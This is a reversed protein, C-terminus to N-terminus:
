STAVVPGPPADLYEDGISTRIGQADLQLTVVRNPLSSTSL